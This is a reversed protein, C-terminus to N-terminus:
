AFISSGISKWFDSKKKSNKRAEFAQLDSWATSAESEMAMNGTTNPTPQTMMSNAIGGLGTMMGIDGQQRALNSDILAQSQAFANNYAGLNRQNLIQGAGFNETNVAFDGMGQNQQRELRRAEARSDEMEFSRLSDQYLEDRADRWGGGALDDVQGGFVSQRRLMDDYITQMEPSLTSTMMNKDRDWRVQGGVGTIDPTSREWIKKDLEQQRRYDEEAYRSGGGGRGGLMGLLGGLDFGGQQTSRNGRSQNGTGTYGYDQTGTGTRTSAYRKAMQREYDQKSVAM